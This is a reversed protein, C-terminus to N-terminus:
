HSKMKVRRKFGHGRHHIKNSQKGRRRSGFQMENISLVTFASFIAIMGGIFFLTSFGLYKAVAGGILASFGASYGAVMHFVAWDFGSKKKPIIDSFWADWSPDGIAFAIGMLIQLIFLQMVNEVFMYGFIVVTALLYGSFLFYKKGYKDMLKGVPYELTAMSILFLAYAAGADLIDGGIKQVFIAYIPGYLGSGFLFIVEALILLQVERKM